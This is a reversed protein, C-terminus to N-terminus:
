RASMSMCSWFSISFCARCAPSPSIFTVQAFSPPGPAIFSASREPPRSKPVPPTGESTVSQALVCPSAISTRPTPANFSMGFSSIVLLGLTFASLSKPGPSLIATVVTFIEVWASRKCIAAALSNPSFCYSLSSESVTDMACGSAAAARSEPLPLMVAWKAEGGNEYWSCAM